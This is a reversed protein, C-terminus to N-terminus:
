PRSCTSSSREDMRRDEFRARLHGLRSQLVLLSAVALRVRRLAIAVEQRLGADRPEAKTEDGGPCNCILSSRHDMEDEERQSLRILRGFTVRKGQAGRQLLAPTLSCAISPNDVNM